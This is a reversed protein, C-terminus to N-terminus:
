VTSQPNIGKMTIYADLKSLFKKTDGLSPDHKVWAQNDMLDIRTQNSVHGDDANARLIENAGTKGMNWQLYVDRITKGKMTGAYHKCIDDQLKICEASASNRCSQWLQIGAADSSVVGMRRMQGVATSQQIQYRGSAGEPGNTDLTYKGSGEIQAIRGCTDGPDSLTCPDFPEPKKTGDPNEPKYDPDTPKVPDRPRRYGYLEQYNFEM